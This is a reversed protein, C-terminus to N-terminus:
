PCSPQNNVGICFTLENRAGIRRYCLDQSLSRILHWGFGGDPLDAADLDPLTGAPLTERPMPRGHDVVRCALLPGSQRVTVEIQGGDSGYAHEVINNLVEALVLEAMAQWEQPLARMPGTERLDGLATQVAVPDARILHRIGQDVHATCAM